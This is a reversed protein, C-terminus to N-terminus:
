VASLVCVVCTSPQRALGLVRGFTLELVSLNLPRIALSSGLTCLQLVSLPGIFTLSSIPDLEIDRLHTPESSHADRILLM